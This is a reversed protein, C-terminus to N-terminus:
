SVLFAKLSTMRELHRARMMKLPFLKDRTNQTGGGKYLM